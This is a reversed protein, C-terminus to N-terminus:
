RSFLFSTPHLPIQSPTMRCTRSPELPLSDMQLPNKASPVCSTLTQDRPLGSWYGQRSFEMSFPTQHALTWPTTFLQVCCLHTLVVAVVVVDEASHMSRGGWCESCPRTFTVPKRWISTINFVINKPPTENLDYIISSPSCTTIKM